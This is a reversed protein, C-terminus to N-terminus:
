GGLIGAIASSCNAGNSCVDGLVFRVRRGSSGGGSGSACGTSSSVRRMGRANSSSAGVGGSHAREDGGLQVAVAATPTSAGAAEGDGLAPLGGDTLSGQQKLIGEAAAAARQRVGSLWEWERKLGAEFRAVEEPSRRSYLLTRAATYRNRKCSQLPQNSTTPQKHQNSGADVNSLTVPDCSCAAGRGGSLCGGM